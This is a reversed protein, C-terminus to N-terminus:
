TSDISNNCTSVWLSLEHILGACFQMLTIGDTFAFSVSHLTNSIDERCWDMSMFNSTNSRMTM